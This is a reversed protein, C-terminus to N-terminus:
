IWRTAGCATCRLGKNIGEDVLCEILDVIAHCVPCEGDLRLRGYQNIVVTIDISLGIRELSEEVVGEIKLKLRDIQKVISAYDNNRMTEYEEDTMTDLKEPSYNGQNIQSQLLNISKKYQKILEFVRKAGLRNVKFKNVM